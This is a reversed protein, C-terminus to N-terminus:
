MCLSISIKNKNKILSTVQTHHVLEILSTNMIVSHLVHSDTDKIFMWQFKSNQNRMFTLNFSSQYINYYLNLLLNEKFFLFARKMKIEIQGHKWDLIRNIKIMLEGDFLKLANVTLNGNYNIFLNGFHKPNIDTLNVLLQRSLNYQYLGSGNVISQNNNLVVFSIINQNKWSIFATYNATPTSFELYYPM